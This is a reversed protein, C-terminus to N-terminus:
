LEFCLRIKMKSYTRAGFVLQAHIVIRLINKQFIKLLKRSVM